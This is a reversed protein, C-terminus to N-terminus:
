KVVQPIDNKTSSPFSIWRSQTNFKRWPRADIVLHCSEQLYALGGTNDVHMCSRALILTLDCGNEDASLHERPAWGAVHYCSHYGKRGPSGM